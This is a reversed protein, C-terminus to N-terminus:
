KAGCCNIVFPIYILVALPQPWFNQGLKRRAHERISNDTSNTGAACNDAYTLRELRSVLLTLNHDRLSGCDSGNTTCAPPAAMFRSTISIDRQDTRRWRDQEADYGLNVALLQWQVVQKARGAM